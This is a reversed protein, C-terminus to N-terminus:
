QRQMGQCKARLVQPCVITEQDASRTRGNRLEPGSFSERGLHMLQDTRLRTRSGLSLSIKHFMLVTVLPENPTNKESRMLWTFCPLYSIIVKSAFIASLSIFLWHTKFNVFYILSFALFRFNCKNCLNCISYKLNKRKFSLMRWLTTRVLHEPCIRYSQLKSNLVASM